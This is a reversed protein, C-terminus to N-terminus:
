SSCRVLSSLVFRHLVQEIVRQKRENWGAKFELPFDHELACWLMPPVYVNEIVDGLKHAATAERAAKKRMELRRGFEELFARGKPGPYLRRLARDIDGDTLDRVRPANPFYKFGHGPVWELGARQYLVGKIDNQGYYGKTDILM